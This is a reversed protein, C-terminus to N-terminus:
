MRVEFPSNLIITIEGQFVHNNVAAVKMGTLRIGHAIIMPIDDDFVRRDNGFFAANGEIDTIRFAICFTDTYRHSIRSNDSPYFDRDFCVLCYVVIWM